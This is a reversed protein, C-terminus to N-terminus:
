TADGKLKFRRCWDDEHSMVQCYDNGFVVPPADRCTGCKDHFGNHAEYWEGMIEPGAKQYRYGRRWADCNKCCEDAM